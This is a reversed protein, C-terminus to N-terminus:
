KEPVIKWDVGSGSLEKTLGGEERKVREIGWWASDLLYSHPSSVM